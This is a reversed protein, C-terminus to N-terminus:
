GGFVRLRCLDANQAELLHDSLSGNGAVELQSDGRFRAILPRSWYPRAIQCNLGQIDALLDDSAGDIVVPDDLCGILPSALDV